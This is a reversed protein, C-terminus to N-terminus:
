GSRSLAGIIVGMIIFVVIAVSWWMIGTFGLYTAVFGAVLVFAIIIAAYVLVMLLIGLIVLISDLDLM